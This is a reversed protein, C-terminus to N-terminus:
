AVPGFLLNGKADADSGYFEHIIQNFQAKSLSDGQPCLKKFNQEIDFGRVRYVWCLDQYENLSFRDNNDQDFLDFILEAM